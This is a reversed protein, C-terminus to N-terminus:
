DELADVDWGAAVLEDLVGVFLNEIVSQDTWSFSGLVAGDSEEGTNYDDHVLPSGCVGEALQGVNLGMSRLVYERDYRLSHFQGPLDERIGVRVGAWLFPVMGTFPSDLFFWEQRPVGAYQSTVLKKPIPADFYIGNHYVVHEDLQVLAVDINPFREKITGIRYQPSTTPHYVQDTDSFVHNAVMVRRAGSNRNRVVLGSTGAYQLGCVKVGATLGFGHYNSTDVTDRNPTILRSQRISRNKWAPIGNSYFPVIGGLRGPLTHAPIPTKLEVVLSGLYLSCSIPSLRKEQLTSLLRELFEFQTEANSQYPNGALYDAVRPHGPNGPIPEYDDDSPLFIAAVGAVTLPIPAPPTECRVIIVPYEFRFEVASPFIDHLIRIEDDTPPRYVNTDTDYLEFNVPDNSIQKYLPIPTQEVDDNTTESLLTRHLHPSHQSIVRSPPTPTPPTEPRRRASTETRGRYAYPASQAALKLATMIHSPRRHPTLRLSVPSRTSLRSTPTQTETM